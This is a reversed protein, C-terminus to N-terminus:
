NLWHTITERSVFTNTDCVLADDYVIDYKERYYLVRDGFVTETQLIFQSNCTDIFIAIGDFRQQKVLPKQESSCSQLLVITLVSFLLTLKKM